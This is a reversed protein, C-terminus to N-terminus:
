KTIDLASKVAGCKPCKPLRENKPNIIRNKLYWGCSTCRNNLREQIKM